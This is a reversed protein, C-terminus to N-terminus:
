QGKAKAKYKAWYADFESFDMRDVDDGTIKSSIEGGGSKLSKSSEMGKKIHGFDKTSAPKTESGFGRTKALKYLREAPNAKDKYAKAAIALEEEVLISQAEDQTYGSIMHEQLRADRVFKYADYYDPHDKAFDTVSKDCARIFAQDQASRQSQEHQQRIYNNHQALTRELKDIKYQHYGLPDEEPDPVIEEPQTKQAADKQAGVSEKLEALIREIDATKRANAELAEKLEKRKHRETKFAKEYDRTKGESELSTEEPEGDEEGDSVPEHRGDGDQGDAQIDKTPANQEETEASIDEGPSNDILNDEVKNEAEESGRSKFYAQEDETLYNDVPGQSM